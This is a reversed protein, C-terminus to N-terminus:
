QQNWLHPLQDNIIHNTWINCHGYTSQKIKLLRKDKTFRDLMNKKEDEYKVQGFMNIVQIDCALNHSHESKRITNEYM